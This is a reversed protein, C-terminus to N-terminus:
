AICYLRNYLDEDVTGVYNSQPVLKGTDDGFIVNKAGTEFEEFVEFIHDNKYGHGFKDSLATFGHALTELENGSLDNRVFVAGGMVNENFNCTTLETLPKRSMDPCILEKNEFEPGDTNNRAQIIRIQASEISQLASPCQEINRKHNFYLAADISRPNSRDFFSNQSLHSM